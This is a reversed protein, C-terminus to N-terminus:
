KARAAFGLSTMKGVTPYRNQAAHHEWGNVVGDGALLLPILAIV